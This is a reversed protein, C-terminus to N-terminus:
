VPISLVKSVIHWGDQTKQLTFLDTSSNGRADTVDIRALAAASAVDVLVILSRRPPTNAPIRSVRSWWEDQTMARLTGERSVSSRWPWANRPRAM